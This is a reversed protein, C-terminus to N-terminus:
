IQPGWVMASGLYATAITSLLTLALSWLYAKRTTTYRLLVTIALLVVTVIGFLRHWWLYGALASEQSTELSFLQGTIATPIALVAAAILMFKAADEYMPNETWSYLVEAVVAMVVLAIPYHVLIVHLQGFWKMWPGVQNAAASAETVHAWTEAVNLILAAGFLIALTVITHKM